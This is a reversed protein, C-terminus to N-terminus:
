DGTKPTRKPRRSKLMRHLKADADVLWEPSEDNASAGAPQALSGEAPLAGGVNMEADTLRDPTDDEEADVFEDNDDEPAPNAAVHQGASPEAAATAEAARAEKAAQVMAIIDACHQVATSAIERARNDTAGGSLLDEYREKSSCAVRLLEDLM